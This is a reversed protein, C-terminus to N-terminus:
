PLIELLLDERKALHLNLFYSPTTSSYPKWFRSISDPPPTAKSAVESLHKKHEKEPEVNRRLRLDTMVHFEQMVTDPSGNMRLGHELVTTADALVNGNAIRVIPRAM